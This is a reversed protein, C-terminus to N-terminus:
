GKTPFFFHTFKRYIGISAVDSAFRPLSVCIRDLGGARLNPPTDSVSAEYGQSLCCECDLLSMRLFKMMIVMVVAQMKAIVVPM